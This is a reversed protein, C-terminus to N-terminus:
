RERLMADLLEDLEEKAFPKALRRNPVRELFERAKETFAGGTTLAVRRAVSADVRSLEEIFDMGTVDAMMLDCLIVDFVEGAAIRALAQGARTEFVVDHDGAVMRAIAKGFLPEDDVILVRARRPAAPVVAVPPPPLTEGQTAPLLVRFVSGKGLESEVQIEGGLGTVISHCISLGLGTGQGVPKTTFFPDLIRPLVEGSIGTGTDHVEILARGHPDTRAVVRVENKSAYGEPIAHAANVLLNLFVQGLRDAHGVIRPVAGFDRVVRTRHRLENHAMRISTELVDILDIPAGHHDVGRSFTKLDRVINRVRRAGASADGIADVAERLRAVTPNGAASGSLEDLSSRLASETFELNTLVFALPNNIEHAVGAALTGVSAMRASLVLADRAKRRETVDQAIGIVMGDSLRVNAWSAFLPRGDKARCTFDRWTSSGELLHERMARREAADPFLQLAVDQKRYEDVSWGLLREAERNILEIGGDAGYLVLIVPSYDFIKQLVEKQHSLAAKTQKEQELTALLESTREEVRRELAANSATLRTRAERLDEVLAANKFRLRSSDVLSQGGARAIRSMALGFVAAMGGLAWHVKNGEGLLRVTIPALAPVTFAVFAPFFSGASAAAGASMGGLVLLIVAQLVVTRPPYLTFAAAGWVVGNVGAGAAFLWGWRQAESAPPSRRAYARLLVIRASTVAYIAGLWAGIAVSDARGWFVYALISSNVIVTLFPLAARSYLSRVQEAVVLAEQADEPGRGEKVM